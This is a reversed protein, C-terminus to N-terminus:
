TIYEFYFQVSIILVMREEYTFDGSIGADVAGGKRIWCIHKDAGNGKAVEQTHVYCGKNGQDWIGECGTANTVESCLKLCEALREPTNVDKRSLKRVGSNQDHGDAKVCFGKEINGFGL